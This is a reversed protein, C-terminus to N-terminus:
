FMLFVVVISLFHTCKVAKGGHPPLTHTHAIESCIYAKKIFFFENYRKEWTWRAIFIRCNKQAIKKDLKVKLPLFTM